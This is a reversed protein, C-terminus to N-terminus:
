GILSAYGGGVQSGEISVLAARTSCSTPAAVDSDATSAKAVSRGVECCLHAVRTGVREACIPAAAEKDAAVLRQHVGAWQAAVCQWASQRLSIWSRRAFSMSRRSSPKGLICAFSAATAMLSSRAVIDNDLQEVFMDTATLSSSAM